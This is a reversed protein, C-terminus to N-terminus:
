GVMNIKTSGIYTEKKHTRTIQLYFIPSPMDLFPSLLTIIGPLVLSLCMFNNNRWSYRMTFFLHFCPSGYSSKVPM